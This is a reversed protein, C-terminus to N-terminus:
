NKKSIWRNIQKNPFPRLKCNGSTIMLYYVFIICRYRTGGHEPQWFRFRTSNSKAATPLLLSYFRGLCCNNYVFM